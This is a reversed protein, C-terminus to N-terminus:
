DTERDANKIWGGGQRKYGLLRAMEPMMIVTTIRTHRRRAMSRKQSDMYQDPNSRRWRKSKQAETFKKPRAADKGAGWAFVPMAPGSMGREYRVVRVLGAAHWKKLTDHAWSRSGDDTLSWVKRWHFEEGAEMRQRIQDRLAELKRRIV